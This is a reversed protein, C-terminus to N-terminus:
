STPQTLIQDVPAYDDTLVLPTGNAHAWADAATGSLLQWGPPQGRLQQRVADVPLPADSAMLVFNGGTRNQLSTPASMVAVNTFTSALTAYEAAAFRNPPYDIVNVAYIGNPKLARRVERASERTTLHWPVSVGGFADGIVLDDVDPPSEHLGVRGDVV